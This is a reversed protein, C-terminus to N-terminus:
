KSATVMAMDKNCKTCKGAKDSTAGCGACYYSGSKVMAVKCKACTGAKDSSAHCKPCVYTIKADSKTSKAPTAPTQAFSATVMFCVCAAIFLLKKM